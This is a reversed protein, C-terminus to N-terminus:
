SDDDDGEMRRREWERKEEIEEADMEHELWDMCRYHVWREIETGKSKIVVVSADPEEGCPCPSLHETDTFWAPIHTPDPDPKRRRVIRLKSM